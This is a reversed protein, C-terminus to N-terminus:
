GERGALAVLWSVVEQRVEPPSVVEAHDLLGLVFSRFGEKNTVLLEFHAWGHEDVFAEGGAVQRVWRAQSEDVRVEVRTPPDDGLRWPPPPGTPRASPREFAGAETGLEVPGRVRDVRFLRETGRSHDFGELYWHGERYYLRYPNVRRECANYEFSVERREAVGAFLVSLAPALPVDVVPAGPHESPRAPLPVLPVSAGDGSDAPVPRPPEGPVRPDGSDTPTPRAAAVPVRAVSGGDEGEAPVPSPPEGPVRPDGSDTPTPRRPAGALKRLAAAAAGEEEGRVAVFSAALSLAMLEGEDLGPDAMEYLERPVWYGTQAEERGGRVAQALVPIGMERLLDKDREFARRFSVPDDSYGGVRQRLEERTLPRRTDLLAVVLNVLRELRDV